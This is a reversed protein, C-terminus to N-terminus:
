ACFFLLRTQTKQEPRGVGTLRRHSVVFETLAKFCVFPNHVGPVLFSTLYISCIGIYFQTQFGLMYLYLYVCHEYVYVACSFLQSELLYKRNDLTYSGKSNMWNRKSLFCCFVNFPTRLEFFMGRGIVGTPDHRMRYPFHSPPDFFWFFCRETTPGKVANEPNLIWSERWNPNQKKTAGGTRTSKLKMQQLKLMDFERPFRPTKETEQHRWRLPTTSFDHHYPWKQILKGATKDSLGEIHCVTPNLFLNGAFM